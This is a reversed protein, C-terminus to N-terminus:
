KPIRALEVATAAVAALTTDEEPSSVPARPAPKVPVQLMQAFPRLAKEMINMTIIMLALFFFVMGMGLVMLRIGSFLLSLSEPDM